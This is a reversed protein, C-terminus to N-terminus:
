EHKKTTEKPQTFILAVRQARHADLIKGLKRNQKDTEAMALTMFEKVNGFRIELQQTESYYFLQYISAELRPMNNKPYGQVFWAISVKLTNTINVPKEVAAVINGRICLRKFWYPTADRWESRKKGNRIQEYLSEACHVYPRVPTLPAVRKLHFVVVDKM